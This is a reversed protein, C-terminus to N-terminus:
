FLFAEFSTVTFVLYTGYAPMSKEASMITKQYGPVSHQQDPIIKKPEPDSKSPLKPDPDQM